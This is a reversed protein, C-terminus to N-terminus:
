DSSAPGGGGKEIFKSVLQQGRERATALEEDTHAVVDLNPALIGQMTLEARIEPSFQERRLLQAVRGDPFDHRSAVGNGGAISEIKEATSGPVLIVDHIQDFVAGVQDSFEPCISLLVNNGEGCIDACAFDVIQEPVSAVGAVFLDYLHNAARGEDCDHFSLFVDLLGPYRALSLRKASAQWGEYTRRLADGEGKCEYGSTESWNRSTPSIEFNAQLNAPGPPGDDSMVVSASLEVENFMQEVLGKVVRGLDSDGVKTWTGRSWFRVRAQSMHPEFINLFHLLEMQREDQQTTLLQFRWHHEFYDQEFEETLGVSAMLRRLAELGTSM